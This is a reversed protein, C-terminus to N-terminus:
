AARRAGPEVQAGAIAAGVVILAHGLARRVGNAPHAHDFGPHAEHEERHLQRGHAALREAEAGHVLADIRYRTNALQSPDMHLSNREDTLRKDLETAHPTVPMSM